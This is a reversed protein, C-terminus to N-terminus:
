PSLIAAFADKRQLAFHRTASAVSDFRTKHIIVAIAINTCLANNEPAFGTRALCADEAFVKDRVHHNVEVSWHGRNWALLEQPSARQAPVSTIGYVYEISTEGTANRRADIRERTVRFIQAVHPYNVLGPLPTLVAIRRQEIRAHAKALEEEFYASADREWHISALTRSTEPANEKVTMLYDAGHTEKITRATDRTTHLADITIVRGAVPVEDLLARVAAAEGGEDNFALSALPAGTAHDVLTATEHHDEGNRNAGRIRKGDLAVARGVKLRPMSFRQLAVEIQEPDVSAIVRHLTSKSVPMYLGTRPNKWAGLAELERQSLKSAYEAAAVPGRMNALRALIYVALTCAVRHKRGQARRFDEIGDLEEYLSRLESPARGAHGKPEWAAPLPGPASLRRCADRRLPYVYLRKPAGHPDTYRGNHRAFGRTDGLYHWNAAEYLTGEFRAPNVFSEAILMPHGYCSQWDDGLRRLMAAMAFSALCPFIGRAGLIVFRTNNAILHLRQFQLQASWGIWRDRHRSKFAGSQWGALAIWLGRWEVIYRLGRGAFRKFGLYHYRDVTGDWQMREHAQALRVVVDALSFGDSPTEFFPKDDPRHSM